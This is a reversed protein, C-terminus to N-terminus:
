GAGGAAVRVVLGVAMLALTAKLWGRYRSPDARRRLAFGAAYGALGLAALPLTASLVTADFAGHRAMLVAQVSKGALFLWNMTAIISAVPLDLLLFYILLVPGAVNLAGESFGAALGFPAALLTPHARAWPLDTRGLRDLVLYVVLVGAMLLMLADAPVAHLAAVGAWLGVPMLVALPWYDRAAARPDGQGRFAVLPGLTVLWTPLVLLAVASKWGFMLGFLPTALLPFGIGVFGHMLGAAVVIALMASWQAPTFGSPALELM